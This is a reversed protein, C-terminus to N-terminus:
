FGRRAPPLPKEIRADSPTTRPGCYPPRSCNSSRIISLFVPRPFIETVRAQRPFM